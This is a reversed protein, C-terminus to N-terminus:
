PLIGRPLGYSELVQYVNGVATTVFIAVLM